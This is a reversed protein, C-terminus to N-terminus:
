SQRRRQCAGRPTTPLSPATKGVASCKVVPLPPGDAIGPSFSSEEAERLSIGFRLKPNHGTHMDGGKAAIARSVAAYCFVM